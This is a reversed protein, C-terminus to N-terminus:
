AHSSEVINYHSSFADPYNKNLEMLQQQVTEHVFAFKNPSLAQEEM